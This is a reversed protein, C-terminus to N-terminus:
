FNEGLMIEKESDQTSFSQNSIKRERDGRLSSSTISLLEHQYKDCVFLFYPFVSYNAAGLLVTFLM